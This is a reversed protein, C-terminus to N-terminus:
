GPESRDAAPPAEADGATATAPLPKGERARRELARDVAEEVVEHLREWAAADAPDAALVDGEKAARRFAAVFEGRLAQEAPRTAVAFFEVESVGTVQLVELIHRLKIEVRGSLIRQLRKDGIGLKREVAAVSLGARQVTSRLVKAYHQVQGRVADNMKWLAYCIKAQHLSKKLGWEDL